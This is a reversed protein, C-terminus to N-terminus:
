SSASWRAPVSSGPGAVGPGTWGWEPGEVVGLTLGGVAVILLLAGVVDPLHTVSEDRSRPVLVATAVLAVIGVPVNVVFVWRWSAEVLLGGLVPGLAAAMAGSAAWIRVSRVRHAAPASAIVLSLSAPTLLAAGVSQVIRFGVLWWVGGSAACAASAVTFLGLGAAFAAKRGVRDALRGAPVLLAAYFITYANLVWSLDSLGAGGFDRGIADFAVNVIFVDLSAMFAASCLIALVVSPHAAPRMGSKM